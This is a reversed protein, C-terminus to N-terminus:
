FPLLFLKQHHQILFFHFLLSLSVSLFSPGLFHLSLFIFGKMIYSIEAEEEKKDHHLPNIM